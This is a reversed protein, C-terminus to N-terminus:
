GCFSDRAGSTVATSGKLQHALQMTSTEASGKSPLKLM